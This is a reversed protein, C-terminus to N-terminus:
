SDGEHCRQCHYMRCLDPRTAHITCAAGDPTFRLFPCALPRTDHITTHIFLEEKDPDIRVIQQVGTILYAIRFEYTGTQEVIGFVDTMYSCCYGCRLCTGSM